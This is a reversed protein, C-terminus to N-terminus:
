LPRNPRNPINNHISLSSVTQFYHFLWKLVLILYFLFINYYYFMDSGGSTVDGAPPPTVSLSFSFFFNGAPELCWTRHHHRCGNMATTITRITFLMEYLYFIFVYQPNSTRVCRSDAGTTENGQGHGENEMQTLALTTLTYVENFSGQALSPRDPPQFWTMHNGGQPGLATTVAIPIVNPWGALLAHLRTFFLFKIHNPLIAKGIRRHMVAKM